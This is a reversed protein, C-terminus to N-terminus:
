RKFDCKFSKAWVGQGNAGYPGGTWSVTFNNQDDVIVILTGNGGLKKFLVNLKAERKIEALLKDLEVGDPTGSKLLKALKGNLEAYRPNKAKLLDAFNVTALFIGKSDSAVGYVLLNPTDGSTLCWIALRDAAKPDVRGDNPNFVLVAGPVNAAGGPSCTVNVRIVSGGFEYAEVVFTTGPAQPPITFTLTYPGSAEITSDGLFTFPSPRYAGAVVYDFHSGMVSVSACDSTISTVTAAAPRPAAGFMFGLVLIAIILFSMYRKMM